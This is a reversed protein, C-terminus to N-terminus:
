IIICLNFFLHIKMSISTYKSSNSAANKLIAPVYVSENVSWNITELIDASISNLFVHSLQCVKIIPHLIHHNYQTTELYSSSSKTGIRIFTINKRIHKNDIIISFKSTSIEIDCVEYQGLFANWKDKQCVNIDKWQNYTSTYSWMNENYILFCM